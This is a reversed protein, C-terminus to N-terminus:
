SSSAQSGACSFVEMSLGESRARPSRPVLRCRVTSTVFERTLPNSLWGLRRIPVAEFAEVEFESRRVLRRFRGVTMRNLGGDTESFRTAGDQKFDARWRILAKETFVLHAWPFVSFLHGGLPHLWPPGFAVLVRGHPDVLRRMVRLIVEPDAYHEFGDMSVIVDAAEDTAKTFVCRDSVGAMAAARRAQALVRERIDIGIVRRAGRSAIEIADQGTGCGFDIVVRGALDAWIAPGFLAEIKSRDKYATSPREHPVAAVHRLMSYGLRGGIIGTPLLTM